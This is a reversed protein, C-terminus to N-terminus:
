REKRQEEMVWLTGNRWGRRRWHEGCGMGGKQAGEDGVMDCGEMRHEEIVWREM